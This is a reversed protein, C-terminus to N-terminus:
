SSQRALDLAEISLTKEASTEELGSQGGPELDWVAGRSAGLELDLYVMMQWPDKQLWWLEIMCDVAPCGRKGGIYNFNSIPPVCPSSPTVPTPSLSSITTCSSEFDSDPCSPSPSPPSSSPSLRTDSDEEINKSDQEHPEAGKTYSYTITPSHSKTQSPSPVSTGLDSLHNSLALFVDSDEPEEGIDSDEGSDDGDSDDEHEDDGDESDSFEQDEDEDEDENDDSDDDDDELDSGSEDNISGNEDDGEIEWWELEKPEQAIMRPKELICTSIDSRGEIDQNIGERFYDETYDEVGVEEDEQDEFYVADGCEIGCRCRNLSFRGSWGSWLLGEGSSMARYAEDKLSHGTGNPMPGDVDTVVVTPIGPPLIIAPSVTIVVPPCRFASSAAETKSM